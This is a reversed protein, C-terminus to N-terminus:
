AAEDTLFTENHKRIIKGHLAQADALDHVDGAPVGSAATLAAIEDNSMRECGATPLIALALGGLLLGAALSKMTTEAKANM